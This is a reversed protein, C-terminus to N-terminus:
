HIRRGETVFAGTEHTRELNYRFKLTRVFMGFHLQRRGLLYAFNIHANIGRVAATRATGAFPSFDTDLQSSSVSLEVLAPYDTPLYIYRGGFATNRWGIRTAAADPVDGALDGSDTTNILTFSASSTTSLYAHLKLFRDGFRYPLKQQLLDPAVREIVSERVVGLMSLKGKEIPGEIRVSSLFPAVSASGSFREKSGNRTSVDIVSSVRGGYRANFGGAYVDANSLIDAPFASYFGVIHFPQYVPIGDILVLNQAPTGGRVFLQGGRDGPTVVGPMTILYAMLDSNVDPMPIHVLQAPRISTLGAAQAGRGGAESEVVLTNLDASEPELTLELTLVQDFNLRLTDQYSRFGLFSATITYTGAPIRSIRFTGDAGTATGTFHVENRDLVINAGEIPFLTEADTISGRLVAGQAWASGTGLLCLGLISMCRRLRM